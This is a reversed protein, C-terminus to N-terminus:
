KPSSPEFELWIRGGRMPIANLRLRAPGVALDEVPSTTEADVTWARWASAFEAVIRESNLTQDSPVFGAAWTTEGRIEPNSDWNMTVSRGNADDRALEVTLGQELAIRTEFCKQWRQSRDRPRRSVELLVAPAHLKLDLRTESGNAAPEAAFEFPEPLSLVTRLEFDGFEKNLAPAVNRLLSEDGLRSLARDPADRVDLRSEPDDAFVAGVSSLAPPAIGVLAGGSEGERIPTRTLVTPVQSPLSPGEVALGVTVSV